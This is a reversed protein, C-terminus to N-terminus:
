TVSRAGHNCNQLSVLSYALPSMLGWYVDQEKMGFFQGHALRCTLLSICALQGAHLSALGCALRVCGDHADHVPARLRRNICHSPPTHSPGPAMGPGGGLQQAEQQDDSTMCPLVLPVPLQVTWTPLLTHNLSFLHLSEIAPVCYM